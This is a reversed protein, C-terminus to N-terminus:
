ENDYARSFRQRDSTSLMVAVSSRLLGRAHLDPFRRVLADSWCGEAPVQLSESVELGTCLIGFHVTELHRCESRAFYGEIQACVHDDASLSPDELTKALTSVHDPSHIIFGITVQQLKSPYLTSLSHHLFGWPIAAPGKPHYPNIDFTIHLASLCRLEGLNFAALRTEHSASVDDIRLTVDLSSLSAGAACVLRQLGDTSHNLYGSLKMTLHCLAAGIPPEVFFDVIDNTEDLNVDALAFGKPPLARGPVYGQTVTYLSHCALTALRPFSFVLRALVISSPFEISDLTLRTVHAFSVSLHTFVDTHFLAPAWKSRLGDAGITLTEVRPNSRGMLFGLPEMLTIAEALSAQSAAMRMAKAVRHGHEKDRVVVHRSLHWRCRVSWLRCVLSCSRLAYAWGGRALLDFVREWMEIPLRPSWSLNPPKTLEKEYINKFTGRPRPDVHQGVHLVVEAGRARQTPEGGRRRWIKEDHSPSVM